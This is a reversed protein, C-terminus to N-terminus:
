WTFVNLTALESTGDLRVVEVNENKSFVQTDSPLTFLPGIREQDSFDLFFTFGVRGPLNFYKKLENYNSTYSQNLAIFLEESVVERSDSSAIRFESDQLPPSGLDVNQAYTNFEGFKVLIFRNEQRDVTFTLGDYNFYSLPAGDEREVRVGSEPATRALPFKVIDQSVSSDIVISYTELQSTINDRVEKMAYDSTSDLVRTTDLPNFFYLGFVLFIIFLSFGIIVEVHELGRKLM